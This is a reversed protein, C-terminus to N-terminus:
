EANRGRIRERQDAHRNQQCAHRQGRTVQRRATGGAYIRHHRQAVFLRRPISRTSSGSAMLVIQCSRRYARRMSVFFAPNVAAMKSESAIPMPAVVAIKLTVFANNSLGSGYGCASRKANSQSREGPMPM